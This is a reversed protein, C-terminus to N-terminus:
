FRYVLTLAILLCLLLDPEILCYANRRIPSFRMM